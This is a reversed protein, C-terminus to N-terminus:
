ATQVFGHDEILEVWRHVQLQQRLFRNHLGQQAFGRFGFYDDGAAAFVLRGIEIQGANVGFHHAVLVVGLLAHVELPTHIVSLVTM